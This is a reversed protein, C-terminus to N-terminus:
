ERLQQQLFNYLLKQGFLNSFLVTSHFFFFFRFIVVYFDHYTISVEWALGLEFKPMQQLFVLKKNNDADKFHSKLHSPKKAM